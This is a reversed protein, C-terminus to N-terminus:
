FLGALGRPQLGLGPGSLRSRRWLHCASAQRRGNGSSLDMKSYPRGSTSSAPFLAESDDCRLKHPLRPAVDLPIRRQQRRSHNTVFVYCLESGKRKIPLISLRLFFGCKGATINVFVLILFRVCEECIFFLNKAMAARKPAEAGTACAWNVAPSRTTKLSPVPLAARLLAPVAINRSSNEVPPPLGTLLRLKVVAVPVDNTLLPVAVESPCNVNDGSPLKIM